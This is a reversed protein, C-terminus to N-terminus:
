PMRTPLWRPLLRHISMLSELLQADRDPDWGGTRATLIPALMPLVPLRRLDEATCAEAFMIHPTDREGTARHFEPVMEVRARGAVARRAGTATCVSAMCGERSILDHVAIHKM